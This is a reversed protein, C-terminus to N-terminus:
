IKDGTETCTSGTDRSDKGTSRGTRKRDDTKGAHRFRQETKGTETRGTYPKGGPAETYQEASSLGCCIEEKGHQRRM